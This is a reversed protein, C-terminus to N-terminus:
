LAIETGNPPTTYFAIIIVGKAFTRGRDLAIPDVVFLFIADIKGLQILLTM